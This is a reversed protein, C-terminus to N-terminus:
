QLFLHPHLTCVLRDFNHKVQKPLFAALLPAWDAPFAFALPLAPLAPLVLALPVGSLAPLVLALPLPM